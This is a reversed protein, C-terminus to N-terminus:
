GKIFDYAGVGQVLLYESPGDHSNVVRHMQPPRIETRQGPLLTVAADPSRSEVTVVGTLCVFFDGVESHHHWDTSAGQALEMIRVLVNGTKIIERSSM